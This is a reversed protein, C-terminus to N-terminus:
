RTYDNLIKGDKLQITRDCNNLINKDHTILIITSNKGIQNLANMIHEKYEGDIASTPEDLIIIKNQKTINRLIHIAQKQGGSLQDGNVGVSTEFGNPLQTFIGDLNLDKCKKMIEEKSMNNGYQINEFITMNFLKTNQNIFLIQKRFESLNYDNIDVDDIFIMGRPITYYGLLLKILTSKGSGSTGIIGIKQKAPIDLYYNEFIKKNKTNTNTFPTIKETEINPEKKTEYEFHLNHITIKGEKIKKVKNENMQRMSEPNVSYIKEFFVEKATLVGITTTLNSFGISIHQVIPTYSTVMLLLSVLTEKKIKKSTYLYVCVAALSVFNVFNVGHTLLDSDNVCKNMERFKNRFDLTNKNHKLVEDDINGFSYISYLNSVKDQITQHLIEFKKEKEISSTFCKSFYYTQSLCFLILLIISVILLKVDVMFFYINMVIVTLLNPLVVICEHFLKTMTVPTNNIVAFLKGLDVDEYNNEHILLLHHYFLNMTYELLGSSIMIKLHFAAYYSINILLLSFFLYGLYTSFISKDIKKEELKKFFSSYIKPIIMTQFPLTLLAFILYALVIWKNELLYDSLIKSAYM